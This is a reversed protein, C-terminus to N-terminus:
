TPDLKVRITYNKVQENPFLIFKNKGLFFFAIFIIIIFSLLILYKKQVLNFVLNEFGLEFKTFWDTEKIKKNFKNKISALRAPLLWFSEILSLFLAISVIIPIWKIFQGMIGKTILMPM